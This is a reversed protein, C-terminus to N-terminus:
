NTRSVASHIAKALDLPRSWMPWHGTPLDIVDFQELKAVEAFMAHGSRALELVQAGSISCCVLTTQVKRRADNTLEVSQRLVPGPEPVARARFRELVAASLGELSAQQALVDFPPLALEELGEPLEPAHVSGTAVPGSDVWVVRQVLEPHRDIVLSVPANAGSHAVLIVPQNGHRAIVDLIAEVQDDLTRTAREPDDRDLGPLTIALARSQDTKLHELVEDWAWAGLWHGAVLIITPSSITTSM